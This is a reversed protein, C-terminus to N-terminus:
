RKLTADRPDGEIRRERETSTRLDTKGEAPYLWGSRESEAGTQFQIMWKSPWCELLGSSPDKLPIKMSKKTGAVQNELRGRLESRCCCCSSSLM